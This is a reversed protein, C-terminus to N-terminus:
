KLIKKGGVINVGKQMKQIRQGALNYILADGNLANNEVGAIGTAENGDFYFAKIGAPDAVELYAKGAKITGSAALYFGAQEGEPKALVYKGAAEIDEATGKLENGEINAPTGLYTVMIKEVRYHGSGAPRTLTVSNAEGTWTATEADYDGSSFQESGTPTDVKNASGFVFEIKTIGDAAAITMSNSGYLRAASGYDYYKPTNINGGGDFSLTVGGVTIETLDEANEFGMASFDVVVTQEVAAAPKFSYLGADGKLVVPEWAPVAGEVATLALWTKQVAGTYATVGEPVDVAKGIYMTAYGAEPIEKVIGHTQYLVPYADEGLDQYWGEGLKVCLVGSALEEAAFLNTRNSGTKNNQTGVGEIEYCNVCSASGRTFSDEDGYKGELTAMSWCNKIVSSGNSWSCIVASERNGKIAGTVYCNTIYLTASGGMDVGLIGSVNQATGTVNGENGLNSLYVSGGGNTGGVIGCFANGSISCSSDLVFNKIVAGGGIVGFLGTYDSTRAIVFNSIVHGQGDFEGVFLNAQSGVPTFRTMNGDMDIDSTLRAKATPYKTAYNSWWALQAGDSIEYWGGVPTMYDEILNGCVTCWGDVNTHDPINAGTESNSYAVDEGLPTGDCRYEAAICYVLAGDKKIPMPEPDTDILQYFRDLGNEKGNLLYALEGNAIGEINTYHIYKDADAVSNGEIPNLVYVNESVVNGYNRSINGSNETDNDLTQNGAGVFNGLVACNTFYTKTAAWGSFGGVRACRAGGEAGPLTFTGAYICNEVRKEKDGMWGCFGGSTNDGVLSSTINIDSYVNRILAMRGNASISGARSGSTTIKGHMIVNEFNGTMEPIFAAHEGVNTMEITLTHGQGNFNGDVWNSTNFIFQGEPAIVEIDDTMKMNLKFGDGIRNWGEALYIDNATKLLVANDAMDFDFGSFNFCGCTTCIGYKDFTHATAQVSGSNSFTIEEADKGEAKGSCNTAVSAFVQNEISGFAVPVPFPDTGIDQVWNIKSQDNNLQYCVKGDALGALPVVETANNNGWQQTAYNNYNAGAPRNGYPNANYTELNVVNLNGGNRAVNASAGNSTDLTSGDSVILCNAINIKDNAWGVVGGCNQTSEGLIAVKALCNEIVTGRYAIGVLGGDTADGVKSSNITVDAYCGRIRGSNWGAISGAFQANTNITGQVKLNQIVAHVGVNRFLGAGNEEFTMDYTITHGAGDFVGQFDQGDRGIRTNDTGKDIDATLVACAYPNDGNVLEAFAKLDEATGIQYVGDVQTLAWATTSAISLLATLCMNM